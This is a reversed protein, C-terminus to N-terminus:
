RLISVSGFGSLKVVGDHSYVGHLDKTLLFAAQGPRNPLLPESQGQAKPTRIPCAKWVEALTLPRMDSQVSVRGEMTPLCDSYHKESVFSLLLPFSLFFFVLGWLSEMCPM